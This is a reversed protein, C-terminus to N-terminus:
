RNLRPPIELADSVSLEAFMRILRRGEEDSAAYVACLRQMEESDEGRAVTFGIAPQEPLFIRRKAWAGNELRFCLFGADRGRVTRDGDIHDMPFSGPPTARRSQLESGVLSALMRRLQEGSDGIAALFRVGSERGACPYKAPADLTRVIECRLAVEGGDHSFRLDASDEDIPEAHQLRAGLIGIELISVATLGLAGPIPSALHLRQFERREEPRLQQM